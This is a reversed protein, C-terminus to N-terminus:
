EVVIGLTHFYPIKRAPRYTKYAGSGGVCSSDAFPSNIPIPVVEMEDLPRAPVIMENLFVNFLDSAYVGGPKEFLRNGEGPLFSGNFSRQVTHLPQNVANRRFHQRFQFPLLM